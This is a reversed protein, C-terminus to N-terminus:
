LIKSFDLVENHTFLRYQHLNDLNLKNAIGSARAYLTKVNLQMGQSIKELNSEKALQQTLLKEKVTLKQLLIKKDIITLLSLGSKGRQSAFTKEFLMVPDKKTFSIYPTLVKANISVGGTLYFNFDTTKTIEIIIKKLDHLNKFDDLDIVCAPLETSVNSLLHSLAAHYFINNSIIKHQM